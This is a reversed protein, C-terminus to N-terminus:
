GDKGHEVLLLEVVYSLSIVSQALVGAEPRAFDAEASKKMALLALERAKVVEREMMTRVSPTM